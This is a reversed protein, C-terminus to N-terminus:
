VGIDLLICRQVARSVRHIRQVGDPARVDEPGRLSRERNRIMKAVIRIREFSHEVLKEVARVRPELLCLGAHVFLDVAGAVDDLGVPHVVLVPLVLRRQRHVGVVIGDDRRHRGVVDAVFETRELGDVIDEDLLRDAPGVLECPDLM